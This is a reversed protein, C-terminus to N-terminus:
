IVDWTSGTYYIKLLSYARRMVYETSGDILDNSQVRIKRPSNVANKIHLMRPDGDMDPIEIITEALNTVRLYEDSATVTYSNSTVNTIQPLLGSEFAPFLEM